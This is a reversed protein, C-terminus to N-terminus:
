VLTMANLIAFHQSENQYLFYPPVSRILTGGLTWTSTLWALTYPVVGEYTIIVQSIHSSLPMVQFYTESLKIEWNKKFFSWFEFFFLFPSVQSLVPVASAPPTFRAPVPHIVPHLRAPSSRPVPSRTLTPNPQTPHLSPDTSWNPSFSM